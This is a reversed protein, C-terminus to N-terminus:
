CALAQPSPRLYLQPQLTIPPPQTVMLPVPHSRLRLFLVHLGKKSFVVPLCVPFPKSAPPPEPSFHLCHITCLLPQMAPRGGLASFPCGSPKVLATSGWGHIHQQRPRSLSQWLPPFFLHSPCCRSHLVAGMETSSPWAARDGRSCPFPSPITCPHPQQLSVCDAEPGAADVM